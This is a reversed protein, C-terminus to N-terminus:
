VAVSRATTVMLFGDIRAHHVFQRRVGDLSGVLGVGVMNWTHVLM